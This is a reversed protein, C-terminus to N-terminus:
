YNKTEITVRDLDTIKAVSNSKTVARCKLEYCRLVCCYQQMWGRNIQMM